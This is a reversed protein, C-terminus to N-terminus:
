QTLGRQGSAGEVPSPGEQGSAESSSAQKRQVLAREARLSAQKRVFLRGCLGEIVSTEESCRARKARSSMLTLGRRRKTEEQVFRGRM